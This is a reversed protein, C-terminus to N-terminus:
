HNAEFPPPSNAQVPPANPRRRAMRDLLFLAIGALLLPVALLATWWSRGIAAIGLILAAGVFYMILTLRTRKKPEDIM